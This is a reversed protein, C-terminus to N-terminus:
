KPQIYQRSGGDFVSPHIYRRDEFNPRFTSECRRPGPCPHRRPHHVISNVVVVTTQQPSYHVVPQPLKIPEEDGAIEAEPRKEEWIPEQWTPEPLSQRIILQPSSRLGEPVLHLNDTFHIIGRDDTWQFVEARVPTASLWLLIWLFGTKRIDMM